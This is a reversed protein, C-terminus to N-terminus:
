CCPFLCSHIAVNKSSRTCPCRIFSPKLICPSSALPNEQSAKLPPRSTSYITSVSFSPSLLSSNSCLPLLSSILTTKGNPLVEAPKGNEQRFASANLRRAREEQAPDYDAAPNFESLDGLDFDYLEANTFLSFDDSMGMGAERNPAPMDLDTPITNLDAIFQSVNPARRGQYNTMGGLRHEKASSYTRTPTLFLPDLSEDPELTKHPPHSGFPRFTKTQDNHGSTKM